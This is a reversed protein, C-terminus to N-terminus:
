DDDAVIVSAANDHWWALCLAALVGFLAGLVAGLGLGVSLRPQRLKTGGGEPPTAFRMQEFYRATWDRRLIELQNATQEVIDSKRDFGEFAKEQVAALAGLFERGLIPQELSEVGACFFAKRLQAALSERERIEQALELDSILVETAVLQASPSLFREGGNKISVVQRVENTASTRSETVLERLRDSKVRLQRIEFNAQLHENRLEQQRSTSLQCQDLMVSKMDVQIATNRVYESLSTLVPEDVGVPREIRLRLGIPGVTGDPLVGFDKTDKNTIAFVPVVAEAVGGPRSVLGFLLKETQTDNLGALRIFEKVRQENSLAAEYQRYTGMTLSPTLFLGQSVYRTSLWSVALGLMVGAVSSVLIVRRYRWVARVLQRLDVDDSDYVPHAHTKRLVETMTPLGTFEPM